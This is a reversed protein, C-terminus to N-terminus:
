SAAPSPSSPAASARARAARFSRFSINRACNSSPPFRRLRACHDVVNPLQKEITYADCEYVLLEQDGHIVNQRGVIGCLADVVQASVTVPGNTHMASLLEFDDPM